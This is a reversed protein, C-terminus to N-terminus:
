TSGRVKSANCDTKALDSTDAILQAWRPDAWAYNGQPTATLSQLTCSYAHTTLDAPQPHEGSTWGLVALTGGCEGMACWLRSTVTRAHQPDVDPGWALLVFQHDHALQDLWADNDPGIPDNIAPLRAAETSIGAHLNYLDFGGYGLSRTLDIFGRVDADNRYDGATGPHHGVVGMPPLHENLTRTLRYRYRHDRSFVARPQHHLHLIFPLTM